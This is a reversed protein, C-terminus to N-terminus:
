IIYHLATPPPILWPWPSRCVFNQSLWYLLELSISTSSLCVSVCLCVSACLSPNVVISQLGIPPSYNCGDGSLCPYSTVVTKYYLLFENYHVCTICFLRTLNKFILCHFWSQMVVHDTLSMWLSIDIPRYQTYAHKAPLMVKQENLIYSLVSCIHGIFCILRIYM